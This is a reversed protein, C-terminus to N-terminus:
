YTNKWEIENLQLIEREGEDWFYTKRRASVFRLVRRVSSMLKRGSGSIGAGMNQNGDGSEGANM